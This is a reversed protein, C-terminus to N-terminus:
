DSAPSIIDGTIKIDDKMCGLWGETKQPPPPAVLAIAEGNRTVLPPKGTKKVEDLLQVCMAKFKSIAIRKLM